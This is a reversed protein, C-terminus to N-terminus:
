QARPPARRAGAGQAAATPRAPTAGDGPNGGMQMYMVLGQGPKEDQAMAPGSGALLGAIAAASLLRNMKMRLGGKSKVLKPRHAGDCAARCESAPWSPAASPRIRSM